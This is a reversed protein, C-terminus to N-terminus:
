RRGKRDIWPKFRNKTEVHGSIADLNSRISHMDIEMNRVREDMAHAAGWLSDLTVREPENYFVDKLESVSYTRSVEGKFPEIRGALKETAESLSALHRNLKEFEAVVSQITAPEKPAKDRHM